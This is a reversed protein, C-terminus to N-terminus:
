SLYIFFSRFLNSVLTENTRAEQSLCNRGPKYYVAFASGKLVTGGAGHGPHCGPVQFYLHQKVKLRPNGAGFPRISGFNCFDTRGPQATFSGNGQPSRSTRRCTRRCPGQRTRRKKRYADPINPRGHVKGEVGLTFDLTSICNPGDIKLIANLFKGGSERARNIDKLMDSYLMRNM